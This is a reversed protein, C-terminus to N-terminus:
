GGVAEERDNRLVRLANFGCSSCCCWCSSRDHTPDARMAQWHYREAEVSTLARRWRPVVQERPAERM